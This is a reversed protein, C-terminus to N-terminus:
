LIGFTLASLIQGGWSSSSGSSSHKHSPAPPANDLMIGQSSLTNQIAFSTQYCAFAARDDTLQQQDKDLTNQDTAQVTQLSTLKQKKSAVDQISTTINNQADIEQQSANQYANFDTNLQNNAAKSAAEATAKASMLRNVEPTNGAKIAGVIQLNIDSLASSKDMADQKSKQWKQKATNTNQRATIADKKAQNLANESSQEDAYAAAVANQDKELVSQDKEVQEEDKAVAQASQNLNGSTEIYLSSM